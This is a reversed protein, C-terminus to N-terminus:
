EAGDLMQTIMKQIEDLVIEGKEASKVGNIIIKGSSFILASAQGHKKIKLIIAPFQEPEYIAEHIEAAIKELDLEKGIDASFVINAVQVAPMEQGQNAHNGLIDVVVALDENAQKVSKTGISILKGSNFVSVKGYMTKTKVYAVRGGYKKPDYHVFPAQRLREFDVKMRTDTVAIVNVIKIRNM